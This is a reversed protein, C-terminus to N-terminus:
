FPLSKRPNQAAWGPRTPKRYHGAFDLALSVPFIVASLVGAVWPTAPIVGDCRTGAGGRRRWAGIEQFGFNSVRDRANRCRIPANSTLHQFNFDDRTGAGAASSFIHKVSM